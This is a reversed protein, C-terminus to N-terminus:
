RSSRPASFTRTCAYTASSAEKRLGDGMEGQGRSRVDDNRRARGPVPLRLLTLPVSCVFVCGKKVAAWVREDPGMCQFM